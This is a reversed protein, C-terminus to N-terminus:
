FNLNKAFKDDTEVLKEIIQFTTFIITEFNMILTKESVNLMEYRKTDFVIQTM